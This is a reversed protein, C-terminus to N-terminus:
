TCKKCKEGRGTERLEGRLERSRARCPNGPGGGGGHPLAHGGVRSKQVLLRRRAHAAPGRVVPRAPEHCKTSRSLFWHRGRVHTNLTKELTYKNPTLTTQAHGPFPDVSQAILIFCKGKLFRSRQFLERGGSEGSRPSRHPARWADLSYPRQFHGCSFSLRQSIRYTSM